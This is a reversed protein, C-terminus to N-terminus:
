LGALSWLKLMKDAGGSLATRGDPSFAVSLVINTHGAFTRLTNGTAVEWLKLTSDFSGSLATRGDPSLAVSQVERL